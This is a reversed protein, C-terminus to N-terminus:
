RQSGDHRREFRPDPDALHRLLPHTRCDIRGIVEPARDAVAVLQEDKAMSRLMAPPVGLLSAIPDIATAPLSHTQIVGCNEVITRWEAAYLDSM